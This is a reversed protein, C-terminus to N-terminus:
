VRLQPCGHRRWRCELNCGHGLKGRGVLTVSAGAELLLSGVQLGIGSSGGVILAQKDIFSM